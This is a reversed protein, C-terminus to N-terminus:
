WSTTNTQKARKCNYLIYVLPVRLINIIFINAQPGLESESEPSGPGCTLIFDAHDFLALSITPNTDYRLRIMMTVSIGSKYPFYGYRNPYTIIAM